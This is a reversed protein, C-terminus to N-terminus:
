DGEQNNGTMEKAQKAPNEVRFSAEKYGEPIYKEPLTIKNGDRAARYHPSMIEIGRENFVDQINQHLSSYIKPIKDAMYTFCNLQYSVYFDDLSTQLVFPDTKDSVGESRKAAEILASHVERWDVDYGITVTSYLVLGPSDSKKTYYTYNTTHNSLITSNPITIEENKPTRVRTVLLSKQLVDGTVDGIKVRDGLRFPRMYTIVVGAIMNSIASSSGLSFLVGLFVTVGKFVASDSGPLYNFIVVFAYAYLLIRLLNFTPKAWDPYFGPLSFNENELEMALFKLFKVLARVLVTILVITILNPIYAIFSAGLESLPNLVYGFLKEAWGRTWPFISLLIPISIYFLFIVLALRLLRLISVLIGVQRQANMLEYGRFRMGTFFTGELSLVKESLKTIGKNTLKIAVVLLVIVLLALLVELALTTISYSKTYEETADRIINSYVKAISDTPKGRADQKTIFLIPEDFYNIATGIDSTNGPELNNPQFDSGLSGLEEIKSSARQAREEVSFVGYAGYLVFLSDGDLKVAASSKSAVTDLAM